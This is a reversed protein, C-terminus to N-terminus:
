FCIYVSCPENHNKVSILIKLCFVINYMKIPVDQKKERKSCLKQVESCSIQNFIQELISFEIKYEVPKPFCNKLSYCNFIESFFFKFFPFIHM